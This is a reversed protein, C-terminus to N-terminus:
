RAAQGSPRTCNARVPAGTISVAAWNNEAPNYRGGDNLYGRSGFGGWLIMESGTWVATHLERAAPAGFTSVVKWINGAPDYRGWDDFYMLDNKGGLRDDRQGDV